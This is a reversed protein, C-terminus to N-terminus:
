RYVTVAVQWGRRTDLLRIVGEEGEAVTDQLTVLFEGRDGVEILTDGLASFTGHLLGDLAPSIPFDCRNEVTVVATFDAAARIQEPIVVCDLPAGFPVGVDMVGDGRLVMDIPLRRVGDPEIIHLRLPTPDVDSVVAEFRGNAITAETALPGAILPLIRVSSGDPVSPDADRDVRGSLVLQSGTPTPVVIASFTMPDWGSDLPPNGTETSTCATLTAVGLAVLAGLAIPSIRALLPTM